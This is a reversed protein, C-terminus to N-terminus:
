RSAELERQKKRTLKAFALEYARRIFGDLEAKPVMRPDDLTVWHARAMYPAPRFGPRDTLELFRDTEVKFSLKGREDGRVCLGCFMKGAVMFILDDEWKIEASVGPWDRTLKSLSNENM